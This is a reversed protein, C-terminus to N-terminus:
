SHDCEAASNLAVDEGEPRSVVVDIRLPAISEDRMSVTAITGASRSEPSPAGLRNHSLASLGLVVAGAFGAALVLAPFRHSNGITYM